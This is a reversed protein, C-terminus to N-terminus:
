AMNQLNVQYISFLVCRGRFPVLMEDITLYESLCYSTKCNYVFQDLMSRVATLKDESRRYNRTTRDDFRM